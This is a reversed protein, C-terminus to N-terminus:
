HVDPAPEDVWDATEALRRRVKDPDFRAPKTVKFGAPDPGLVANFLIKQTGESGGGYAPDFSFVISRGRGVSEDAVATTGMLWHTSRRVGSVRFKGSERTPFRVPSVEKPAFMARTDMLPWASRGVGRALPSDRDVLAKVMPGDISGPIQVYRASSIGLAYALRAGGYRWGVLRGGRNVWHVLARQGKNGLKRLGENIGGAPVVLVDLGGLAPTIEDANYETYPLGWQTTFLWRTHRVNEYASFDRSLYLVGVSPLPSPLTPPGPEAVPGVLAADPHLVQGSTAGDLNYALPLSWSSVRYADNTPNYPDENLAAQIWRKQRQAMPVWYTGAPLVERRPGELYPRLDTVTLPANLRYVEVDTGQLRHILMAMERRKSPEDRFFYHRLRAKPVHHIPRSHPEYTKNPQLQGRRGEDLADVYSRHLERLLRKRNAAATGLMSWMTTIHRAFRRDLAAYQCVEVTMGAGGFAMVAFTDTFRPAFLDYGYGRNFFDFDRKRFERAFAPGFLDNIQRVTQEPTEHYVPDDNPPFFSRYYGFEHHDTLVAPPYQRMLEIKGDTEPQTRALHDQNLDFAYANRRLDSKRGDPNQTPVIVVVCRDLIDTVGCDDRDALEYLVQLAADAGSEEGGHLNAAIWIFAPTTSALSNVTAQPTSPDRIAEVDAQVQSLGAPTVNSPDGVIAYRIDRGRHSQGLTGVTVRNSAAGVADVYTVIEDFTVERDVGIPFGLVDEPTPVVGMFTAPTNLPDCASGRAAGLARPIPLATAAVAGASVKMFLRRSFPYGEQQEDNSSPEAAHDPREDNM